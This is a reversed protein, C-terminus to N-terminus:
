YYTLFLIMKINEQFKSLINRYKEEKWSESSWRWRRTL